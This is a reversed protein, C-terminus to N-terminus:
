RIKRFVTPKLQELPVHMGTISESHGLFFYGGLKLKDCLKNIVKEQTIKDFYIIVNRCFVIDFDSAIDLSDDMFNLRGFTVRNRLYPVIRVTKKSPDKSKLFYKRKLQLPIGAVREESYVATIAKNLVHTSLDTAAISFNIPLQSECFENIVMALTYPEEGSSCGASWIKLPRVLTNSTFEPLIQNTLFDFHAPERFFDTKNTTVLDIMHILEQQRGQTSFVFDCYDKYSDIQLANLRKQLRSELMTKKVPTLKIGYEDYIFNSLKTFDYASMKVHSLVM